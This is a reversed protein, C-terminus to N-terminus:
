ASSSAWASRWRRSARGRGRVRAVRSCAAASTRGPIQAPHAVLQGIRADLDSSPAIERLERAYQKLLLAVQPHLDDNLRENTM